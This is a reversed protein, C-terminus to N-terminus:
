RVPLLPGHRRNQATRTSEEHPSWGPPLAFDIALKAQSSTSWTSPAVVLHHRHDEADNRDRSSTSLFSSFLPPPALPHFLLLVLTEPAQHPILLLPFLTVSKTHASAMHGISLLV